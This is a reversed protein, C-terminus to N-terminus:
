SVQFPVDGHVRLLFTDYVVGRVSFKGHVNGIFRTQDPVRFFIEIWKTSRLADLESPQGGRDSLEIKNPPADLIIDDSVYFAVRSM